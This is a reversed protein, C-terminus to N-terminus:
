HKLMNRKLYKETLKEKLSILFFDIKQYYKNQLNELKM